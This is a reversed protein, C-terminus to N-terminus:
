EGKLGRKKRYGNGEAFQREPDGESLELEM